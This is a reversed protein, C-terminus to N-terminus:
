SLYIYICKTKCKKTHADSYKESIQLLNNECFYLMRYKQQFKNEVRM